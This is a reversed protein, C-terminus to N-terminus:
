PLGGALAQVDRVVQASPATTADAYAARVWGRRDVVFLPSQHMVAFPAAARQALANNMRAQFASPALEAARANPVVQYGSHFGREVVTRVEKAPGTLYALWSSDPNVGEQVLFARLDSPGTARDIDFAVFQVAGALHRRKLDQELNLVKSATLPCLTTCYPDMTVVVRVKGLFQRSSVPQGLQDVLRYSPARFLHPLPAPAGALSAVPGPWLFVALGGLLGVVAGLGLWPGRGSPRM